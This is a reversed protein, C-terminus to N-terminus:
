NWRSPRRFDALTCSWEWFRSRCGATCLAPSYTRSAVLSYKFDGYRVGLSSDLGERRSVIWMARKRQQVRTRRYITKTFLKHYIFTCLESLRLFSMFSSGRTFTSYLSFSSRRLHTLGGHSYQGRGYWAAAVSPALVRGAGCRVYM